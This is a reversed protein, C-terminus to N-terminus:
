PWLKGRALSLGLHHCSVQPGKLFTFLALNGNLLSGGGGGLETNKDRTPGVRALALSRAAGETFRQEAKAVLYCRVPNTEM